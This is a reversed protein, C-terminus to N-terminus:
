DPRAFQFDADRIRCPLTSVCLHMIANIVEVGYRHTDSKGVTRYQSQAIGPARGHKSDDSESRREVYSRM